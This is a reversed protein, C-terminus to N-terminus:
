EKKKRYKKCVLYIESSTKRSSPPSFRRVYGFSDKLQKLLGPFDEGEFVKTVFNGGPRLMKEAMALAMEVLYVSRAQDMSYHGTLDPSMDSVIVDAQDMIELIKEQTKETTMDGRIFIVSEWKQIGDLDVGVVQGADGVLELSVQSWGGPAAGLDLVRDGQKIVKFKDNIQKLKYASRSRYGEAKASRYYHDRKHQRLWTKSM